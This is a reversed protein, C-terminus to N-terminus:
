LNGSFAVLFSNLTLRFLLRYFSDLTSCTRIQSPSFLARGERMLRKSLLFIKKRVESTSLDKFHQFNIKRLMKWAISYLVNMKLTLPVRIYINTSLNKKKQGRKLLIKDFGRLMQTTDVPQKAAVECLHCFRRAIKEAIKNLFCILSFSEFIFIYRPLFFKIFKAERKARGRSSLYCVCYRM